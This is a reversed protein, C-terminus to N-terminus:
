EAAAVRDAGDRRGSRWAPVALGVGAAAAVVIALVSVALDPKVAMLFLVGFAIGVRGFWSAPFLPDRVSDRIPQSIAGSESSLARELAVIRIGNVAGAVAIVLWAALAVLIWAVWGWSTVTMYIGPILVLLASAPGIMRNLRLIGASERAAEATTARRMQRLALGELSLTAFLLVAGAVHLFVAISYATM